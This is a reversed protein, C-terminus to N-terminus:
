ASPRIPASTNKQCCASENPWYRSAIRLARTQGANRTYSTKWPRRPQRRSGLRPTMCEPPAGTPLCVTDSEFLEPHVNFEVSEPVFRGHVYEFEGADLHWIARGGSPLWRGQHDMWGDIPTTWRAQTLGDPLAAWRDTTSFDVM